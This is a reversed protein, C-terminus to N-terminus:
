VDVGRGLEERTVVGVASAADVVQGLPPRAFGELARRAPLLYDQRWPAGLGELVVVVDLLLVQGLRGPADHVRGLTAEVKLLIQIHVACVAILYAVAMTGEAIDASRLSASRADSEPM